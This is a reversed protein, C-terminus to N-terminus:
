KTLDKSSIKKLNGFAITKFKKVTVTKTQKTKSDIDANHYWRRQVVAIKSFVRRWYLSYTGKSRGTLSESDSSTEYWGKNIQHTSTFGMYKNLASLSVKLTGTYTNKCFKTVKCSIVSKGKGDYYKRVGEVWSGKTEGDSHKSEIKWYYYCAPDAVIPFADTSKFNVTQVLKNDRIDYKTEIEKGNADTAWPAEFLCEIEGEDDLVYICNADDKLFEKSEEAKIMKYKDPLNIEFSYEKPADNNKIVILERVGDFNLGEQEREVVQTAAAADSEEDNYIITDNIKEGEIEDDCDIEDPIGIEVAENEGAEMSALDDTDDPLSISMDDIETSFEDDKKDEVVKMTDAEDNETAENVINVIDKNSIDLNDDNSSAFSPIGMTLILAISLIITIFKKM